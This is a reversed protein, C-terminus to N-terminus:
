GNPGDSSLWANPRGTAALVAHVGCELVVLAVAGFGASTLIERGSPWSFGDSSGAGLMARFSIMAGVGLLAGGILWVIVRASFRVAPPLHRDKMVPLVRRLFALEVWHGGFTFWLAVVVRGLWGWCANSSSPLGVTALTVVSGIVVALPVTRLLTARLPESGAPKDTISSM